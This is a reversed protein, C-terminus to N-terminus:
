KEDFKPVFKVRNGVFVMRMKSINKKENPLHACWMSTQIRMQETETLGAM